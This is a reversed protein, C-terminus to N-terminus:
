GRFIRAFRRLAKRWLPAHPSGAEIGAGEPSKLPGPQGVARLKSAGRTVFYLRGWHNGALDGRYGHGELMEDWLFADEYLVSFNPELLAKIRTRTEDTQFELLILSIGSLDMAELIDAEAGEVDLKVIDARPLQAPHISPVAFTQDPRIETFTRSMCDALGAEGDGDFRGFYRVQEQDTPFVAANVPQIGSFAATNRQLMAFTGPHPEFAHIRSNPWRASAWLSFSGVNAGLDLIELNEGFLGAEYEGALVEAIAYAMSEPAEILTPVQAVFKLRAIPASM